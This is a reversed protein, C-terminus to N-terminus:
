AARQQFLCSFMSHYDANQLRRCVEQAIIPALLFGHRFLGNVRILGAGIEVKPLNDNLAPRCNSRMDVVRAEAFGPHLSYAASLLELSSRLTIPGRDASEIQTAGIIYLDDYGKPVIYLPYRPHMLRVLRKLAVEPAQLWILEGRVGRLNQWQPKAGLGRCDIVWDFAYSQSDTQLSHACVNTILTESHWSVGVTQLRQALAKLTKQPCLCAEQPLYTAQQFGEALAPELLQLQQQNLCNVRAWDDTLKAQLQRNFQKLDAYDQRHAVVLSGYQQWGCDDELQACLDPWLSLSAMGLQYILREASELECYPTLMGAATHAAAQGNDIPDRDFLSVAFGARHLQWALVRGMIGAGAIGVTTKHM